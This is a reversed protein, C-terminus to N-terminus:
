AEVALDLLNEFDDESHFELKFVKLTHTGSKHHRQYSLLILFQPVSSIFSPSLEEISNNVLPPIAMNVLNSVGFSPAFSALSLGPLFPYISILQKRPLTCPHDLLLLHSHSVASALVTDVGKQIFYM